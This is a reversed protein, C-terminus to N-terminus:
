MMMMGELEEADSKGWPYREGWREILERHKESRPTIRCEYPMPHSIIGPEFRVEPITETPRIDFVALTQAITLFLANDAVYRGPCIRRGYGFVFARPDPEPPHTSTPTPLFRSPNFSLPDAYTDPDHTFWRCPSNSELLTPRQSLNHSPDSAHISWPFYLILM